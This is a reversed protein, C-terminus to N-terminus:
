LECYKVFEELRERSFRKERRITYRINGIYTLTYVVVWCKLRNDYKFDRICCGDWEGYLPPIVRILTDKITPLNM